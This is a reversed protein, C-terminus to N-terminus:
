ERLLVKNEKDRVHWRSIAEALSDAFERRWKKTTLNQLDSSTSMFGAEILISPIDPSKLVSFAAYRLPQSSLETIKEKFVKLIFSAIAESRPKTEQRAMDLLVSAVQSDLGSLDVGSLIESRDHRSALQASMKDTAKDSLLYVTTGSAEGEIVADAHLSIFLNADSQSAITIRDELSLFKDETRTLVVKFDTNRILSEKVAEALELMLSSERYGGAEAGPDRGGHGPDLVVVFDNNEIASIKNSSFDKNPKDTLSFIGESISKLFISLSASNDQPSISMETNEIAWYDALHFSLRSWETDLEKIEISKINKSQNIKELDIGNFNLVNFDIILSLPDREMWIKYPVGQSLQLNIEIGGFFRDKAFSNEKILRAFSVESVLPTALFLFLFSPFLKIM